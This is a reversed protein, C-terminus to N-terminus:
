VVVDFRGEREGDKPDKAEDGRATKKGELSLELELKGCTAFPAEQSALGEGDDCPISM